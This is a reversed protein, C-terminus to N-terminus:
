DFANIIGLLASLSFIVWISCHDTLVCLALLGAQLMSAVQTILLIRYRNHRDAVIGGWLSCVFTPFQSVFVSMGLLVTSHTLTYVVWSVATRQIWTGIQSVSQGIFFLSYNRYRFAGFTNM